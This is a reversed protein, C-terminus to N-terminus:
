LVGGWGTCVEAQRRRKMAWHCLFVCAGVGVFCMLYVSVDGGRVLACVCLFPLHALASSDVDSLDCASM